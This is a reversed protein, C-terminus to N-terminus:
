PLTVSAVQPPAVAGPELSALKGNVFSLERARDARDHIWRERWGHARRVRAIRTPRGWGPINLIEDDTMGLAISTRFPSAAQSAPPTAASESATTTSSDPVPATAGDPEPPDAYDPLNLVRAEVQGDSCPANQYSVAGDAACKHIEQTQAQAAAAAGLFILLWASHKM